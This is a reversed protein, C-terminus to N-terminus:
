DQGWVGPMTQLSQALGLITEMGNYTNALMIEEDTTGEPWFDRWGAHAEYTFGYVGLNNPFFTSNTWRAKEPRGLQLQLGCNRKVQEFTKDQLEVHREYTNGLQDKPGMGIWAPSGHSHLDMYCDVQNERLFRLMQMTEVAMSKTASAPRNILRGADNFRQGLYGIRDLKGAVDSEPTWPGFVRKRDLTRGNKWFGVHLHNVADFPMDVYTKVMSRAAADPNYFPMLYFGVKKAAKAFGPWERGRLDSGTEFARIINMISAVGEVETGHTWGTVVIRREPTKPGYYVVALDRGGASKGVSLIQGTQLGRLFGRVEEYGTLWWAPVDIYRRIDEAFPWPWKPSSNWTREAM